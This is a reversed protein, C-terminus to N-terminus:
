TNQLELTNGTGEFRFASSAGIFAVTETEAIWSTDGAGDDLADCSTAVDLAGGCQDGEAVDLLDAGLGVGHARLM